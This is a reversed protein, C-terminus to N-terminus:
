GSPRGESGPKVRPNLVYSSFVLGPRPATCVLVSVLVVPFTVALQYLPGSPTTVFGPAGARGRSMMLTVAPPETNRPTPKRSPVNVSREPTVGSVPAGAVSSFVGCEGNTEDANKGDFSHLRM